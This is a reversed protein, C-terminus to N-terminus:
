RFNYSFNYSFIAARLAVTKSIATFIRHPPHEFVWPGARTLKADKTYIFIEKRGYCLNSPWPFSVLTVDHEPEPLKSAFCPDALIAWGSGAKVNWGTRQMSQRLYVPKRAFNLASGFQQKKEQFFYKYFVNVQGLKSFSLKM